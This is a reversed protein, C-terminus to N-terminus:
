QFTFMLSGGGSADPIVSVGMIWRDLLNDPHAHSYRVVKLGSFTGIAAGLVVDSAWHNNHYMRSLGVLTAGGYLAPAAFWTSKPWVRRLEATVSSAAAFAATTHGSPFSQRDADAFGRFFKFDHANSDGAVYPRARGLVGKLITTVGSALLVSETGHWGLDELDKHGGFRGISYLAGGIVFAGPTAIMELGHGTNSLFRNAQVEPDQLSQAIHRDAPFMAVTLFGFGVALMGDTGTFLAQHKGPQATDRPVLTRGDSTTDKVQAALQVSTLCLMVAATMGRRVNTITM